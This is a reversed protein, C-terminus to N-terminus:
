RLSIIKDAKKAFDNDHTAFILTSKRKKTYSILINQVNEANDKDLSGTPEDAIIIDPSNIIARAIATRQKQGGSLQYPFNDKKDLINLSDLIEIAYSINEKKSSIMVNEIVSLEDILFHYQYIFGIHNKRISAYDKENFLPVSIEGSSPIDLKAILHLITSKGSGSPGVFSIIEGSHVDLNFDGLVCYSDYYKCVSKCSVIISSNSQEQM